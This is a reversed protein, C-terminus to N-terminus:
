EGVFSFNKKGGWINPSHSNLVLMRANYRVSRFLGHDSELSFEADKRTNGHKEPLHKLFERRQERQRGRVLLRKSMLNEGLVSSHGM